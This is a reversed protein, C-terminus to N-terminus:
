LGSEPQDRWHAHDVRHREARERRDPRLGLDPPRQADHAPHLAKGGLAGLDTELDDGIVQDADLKGFGLAGLGVIGDLAFHRRHVASAEVTKKQRQFFALGRHLRKYHRRSLILGSFTQVHVDRSRRLADCESADELLM